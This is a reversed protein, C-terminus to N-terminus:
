HSGEKKAEAPANLRKEEPYEYNDKLSMLYAVLSEARHSPVVQYGAKPAYAAPLRLAKPSWQGNIVKRTEYLFSHSPKHAGVAAPAYLMKHFWEAYEAPQATDGLRSGVNRLDPGLRSSGLFVVTEMIYDRPYSERVGWKRELDGGVRRVQQTHCYACGLDQYVLRGQNVLGSTAYPHVSDDIADKHQALAGIQRHPTLLVAAWSLVTLGLIGFFILLGNKM